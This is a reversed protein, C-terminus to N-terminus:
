GITPVHRLHEQTGLTITLILVEENELEDLMQPDVVKRYIINFFLSLRTIAYIVNKLLIDQIAVFIVIADVHKKVHMVDICHRVDLMNYYSLDFVMLHKKLRRWHHNHTLFRKYKLYIIKRGHYLQHHCTGNECIPYGKHGKLSYSHIKKWQLSNTQHRLKGDKRGDTQTYEISMPCLIKNADYNCTPLTNGKSFM